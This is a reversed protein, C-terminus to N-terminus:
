LTDHPLCIADALGGASAPICDYFAPCDTNYDCREFCIFPSGASLSYCAGAYGNSSPCDLDSACEASCLGDTTSVVGDDYTIQYCADADIACDETTVCRDYFPRETVVVCGSLFLSSAFLAVIVRM